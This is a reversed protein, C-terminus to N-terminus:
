QDITTAVPLSGHQYAVVDRIIDELSRAPAWDILRQVKAIDPV